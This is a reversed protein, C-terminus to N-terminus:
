FLCKSMCLLVRQLFLAPKGKRILFISFNDDKWSSLPCHSCILSITVINNTYVDLPPYFTLYQRCLERRKM